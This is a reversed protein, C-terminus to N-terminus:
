RHLRRHLGWLSRELTRNVMLAPVLACRTSELRLALSVWWFGLTWIQPLPVWLLPPPDGMVPHMIHGSGGGGSLLAEVKATEGDGSGDCSSTVVVV